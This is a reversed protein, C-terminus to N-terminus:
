FMNASAPKGIAIGGQACLLLWSRVEYACWLTGVVCVAGWAGIAASEYATPFALRLLVCLVCVGACWTVAAVTADGSSVKRALMLGGAASALCPALAYAAAIGAPVIASFAACALALALLTAGGLVALRACALAVANNLCSAELEQMLCSRARVVGALCAAILIPGSAVLVAEAEHEPVGLFALAFSLAVVAVPAVWTARPTSKAATRVLNGTMISRATIKPSMAAAAATEGAAATGATPAAAAAAAGASVEAAVAAAVSERHKGFTASDLRERLYHSRLANELQIKEKTRM